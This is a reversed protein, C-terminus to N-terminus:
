LGHTDGPKNNIRIGDVADDFTLRATFHDSDDMAIGEEVADLTSRDAVLQFIHAQQGRDNRAALHDANAPVKRLVGPFQAILNGLM